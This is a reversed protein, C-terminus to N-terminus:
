FSDRSRPKVSKLNGNDPFFNEGRLLADVADLLVSADEM